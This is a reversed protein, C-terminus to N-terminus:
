VPTILAANQKGLSAQVAHFTALIASISRKVDKEMGTDLWM